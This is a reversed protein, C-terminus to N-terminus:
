PVFRMVATVAPENTRTRRVERTSYTFVSRAAYSASPCPHNTFAARRYNPVTPSTIGMGPLVREMPPLGKVIILKRDDTSDAGIATQDSERWSGERAFEGSGLFSSIDIGSM